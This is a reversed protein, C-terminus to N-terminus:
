KMGIGPPSTFRATSTTSNWAATPLSLTLRISNKPSNAATIPLTPAGLALVFLACISGLVVGSWTSFQHQRNM